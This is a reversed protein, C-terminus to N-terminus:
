RHIVNKSQFTFCFFLFYFLSSIFLHYIYNYKGDSRVFITQVVTRQGHQFTVDCYFVGFSRHSSTNLSTIYYGKGQYIFRPPPDNVPDSRNNHPYVYHGSTVTANIDPTTCQIVPSGTETSTYGHSLTAVQPAAIIASHFPM